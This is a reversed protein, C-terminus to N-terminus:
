KPFPGSAEVREERYGTEEEAHGLGGLQQEDLVLVVRREAGQAAAQSGFLGALSRLGQHKVPFTSLVEGLAQFDGNSPLLSQACVPVPGPM